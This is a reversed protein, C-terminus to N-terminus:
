THRDLLRRSTTWHLCSGIDFNTSLFGALNLANEGGGGVMRGMNGNM